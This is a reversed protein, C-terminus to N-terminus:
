GVKIEDSAAVAFDASTRRLLTIEHTGREAPADFITQASRCNDLRFPGALIRGSTATVAGARDVAVGSGDVMVMYEGSGPGAVQWSARGGPLVTGASVGIAPQDCQREVLGGDGGRLLPIMGFGAFLLLALAVIGTWRGRKRPEEHAFALGREDGIDRAFAERRRRAAKALEPDQRGPRGGFVFSVV